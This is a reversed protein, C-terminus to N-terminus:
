SPGPQEGLGGPGIDFSQGFNAAVLTRVNGIVTLSPAEYPERSDLGAGENDLLTDEKVRRMVTRRPSHYNLRARNWAELLAIRWLPIWEKVNRLAPDVKELTQLRKQAGAQEVFDSISWVSGNVLRTLEQFNQRIQHAIAGGALAKTTVKRVKPSLFIEVADRQVRRLYGHPARLHWPVQLVFEFLKLDWYPLRLEAGRDNVVLRNSETVFAPAPHTALRWTEQQSFSAFDYSRISQDDTRNEFHDLLMPGAWVPANMSPASAGIGGLGARLHHIARQWSSMQRLERFLKLFHGRCLLDRFYGHSWGIEDGGLGSLVVRIKNAEIQELEHRPGYAMGLRLGPMVPHPSTFDDSNVDSGNWTISRFLPSAKAADSILESEDCSLGPCLASLTLMPPRGSQSQYLRHAVGVIAGSDLGGSLYSAVPHKSELRCSVSQELLYRWESIMDAYTLVERVQQPPHWYRKQSPGSRRAVLVHGPWVQHIAKFFTLGHHAADALLYDLIMDPDLQEREASGSELLQRVDSALAMGHPLVKYYLPRLGFHDRIAHVTRQRWDWVVFAFDGHIKALGLEGTEAYVRAVVELNSCGAPVGLERRLSRGGYLRVDGVVLWHREPNVYISTSASDAEEVERVAVAVEAGVVSRTAWSDFSRLPTVTAAPNIPLSPDSDDWSVFASFVTM